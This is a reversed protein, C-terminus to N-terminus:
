HETVTSDNKHMSEVSRGLRSVLGGQESSSAINRKRKEISKFWPFSFTDENLLFHDLTWRYMINILTIM